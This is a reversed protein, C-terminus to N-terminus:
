PAIGRSCNGSCPSIRVSTGCITPSTTILADADDGIDDALALLLAEKGDFHNYFSGAAKGAETTIDTITANLYGKREFVVRAADLLDRRTQAAKEQRTTM